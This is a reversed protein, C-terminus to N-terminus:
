EIKAYRCAPASRSDRFRDPVVSDCVISKTENVSNNVITLIKLTVCIYYHNDPQAIVQTKIALHMISRSMSHNWNKRLIIM